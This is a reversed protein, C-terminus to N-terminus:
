VNFIKYTDLVMEFTKPVSAVSVGTEVPTRNEYLQAAIYMVAARLAPPVSTSAVGFGSVFTVQVSNPIGLALSPWIIGSKKVLRGLLSNTDTTYNTDAWTTLTEDTNIYKLHTVSSLPSVPLEIEDSDPFEDMTLLYSRQLLARGTKSEVVQIAASLYFSILEDDATETVRLHDKALALDLASVEPTSTEKWARRM